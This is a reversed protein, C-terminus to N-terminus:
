ILMSRGNPLIHKLKKWAGFIRLDLNEKSTKKKPYDMGVPKVKMKKSAVSIWPQSRDLVDGCVIEVIWVPGTGLAMYKCIQQRSYTLPFRGRHVFKEPPQFFVLNLRPKQTKPPHNTIQKIILLMDLMYPPLHNKQRQKIWGFIVPSRVIM